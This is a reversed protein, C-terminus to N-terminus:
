SGYMQRTWTETQQQTRLVQKAAEPKLYRLTRKATPVNLVWKTTLRANCFCCILNKKNFTPSITKKM